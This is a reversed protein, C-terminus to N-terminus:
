YFLFSVRPQSFYSPERKLITRRRCSKKRSNMCNRWTCTNWWTAFIDNSQPPLSLIRTEVRSILLCVLQNVTCRIEVKARPARCIEHGLLTSVHVSYAFQKLKYRIQLSNNPWTLSQWGSQLSTPPDQRVHGLM